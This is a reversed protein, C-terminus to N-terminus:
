TLHDPGCKLVAAPSIHVFVPILGKVNEMFDKSSFIESGWLNARLGFKCVVVLSELVECYDHVVKAWVGKGETVFRDLQKDYGLDSFLLGRELWLTPAYM